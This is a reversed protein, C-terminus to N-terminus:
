NKIKLIVTKNSSGCGSNCLTSIPICSHGRVIDSYQPELIVGDGFKSTIQNSSVAKANKINM